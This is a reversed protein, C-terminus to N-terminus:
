ERPYNDEIFKSPYNNSGSMKSRQTNNNKNFTKSYNGYKHMLLSQRSNEIDLGSNSTNDIKNNNIYKRESFNMTKFGTFNTEPIIMGSTDIFNNGSQRYSIYSHMNSQGKNENGDESYTFDVNSKLKDNEFNKPSNHMNKSSFKNISNLNNLNINNSTNEDIGFSDHTKLTSNINLNDHNLNIASYNIRSSFINNANRNLYLILNKNEEILKENEDLKNTYINIKSKMESIEQDKQENEKKM